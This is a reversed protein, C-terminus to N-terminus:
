EGKIELRVQEEDVELSFGFNELKGEKKLTRYSEKLDSVYSARGKIYWSLQEDTISGPIDGRLVKSKAEVAQEIRKQTQIERTAEKGGDEYLSFLFVIIGGVLLLITAKIFSTSKTNEM